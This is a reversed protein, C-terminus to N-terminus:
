LEDILEGFTKIAQKTMGQQITWSDILKPFVVQELNEQYKYYEKMDNNEYSRSKLHSPISNYIERKTKWFWQPRKSITSRDIFSKGPIPKLFEWYSNKSDKIIYLPCDNEKIPEDHNLGDVSSYWKKRLVKFTTDKYNM